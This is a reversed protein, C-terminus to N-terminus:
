KTAMASPWPGLAPLPVAEGHHEARVAGHAVSRGALWAALDEIRGQLVVADSGGGLRVPGGATPRLEFALGEPVRPALFDVLHLCFDENWEQQTCGTGLDSRHIVLERWLALAADRVVGQRFRVPADWESPGLSEFAAIARDVAAGTRARHVAAAAGAGAEIGADRAPMGGDYLDAQEGRRALEAQRALADAIGAIHALVHGRTWGPLESAAAISDESLGGLESHIGEAATHLAALIQEDTLAAADTGM